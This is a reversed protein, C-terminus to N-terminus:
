LWPRYDVKPQPNAPKPIKYYIAATNEIIDQLRENAIKQQHIMACPLAFFTFLFILWMLASNWDRGKKRKKRTM